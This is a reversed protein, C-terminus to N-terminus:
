GAKINNQTGIMLELIREQTMNKKDNIEGVIRGNRMVYIRDSMGILEPLESSIMLIAIGESALRDIIKYIEAKANVDIGRTPEDLILLRPKSTLWKALVVKQQNGGSLTNVIQNVSKSVINLEKIKEEAIKNEIRKNIFYNKFLNSLSALSINEKISMDLILGENKRDEPLYLLGKKILEHPRKRNINEGFYTIEGDKFARAGFISQALETRGSGVLGGLGVIEGKKVKIHVPETRDSIKLGKVELVIEERVKHSCKYMEKLPRGVMMKIITDYDFESRSLTGIYKGDRLVTIRDGIEVLEELRHSIYIISIGKSKMDRILRFLIDIEKKSLSATPEDMIVIKSENSLVKAIEVIQQQAISLNHVMTSPDIDFGLSLLLERSLKYMSKKDTLGNKLLERGLYINHVVDLNQCLNLEQHIFGIGHNRAERPDKFSVEKGELVIRGEDPPIIGGLIKMLTSKGAGNEGVIVHVEGENLSFNVGDLIKVTKNRIAKGYSDYIYKTISQM